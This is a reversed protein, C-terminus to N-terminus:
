KNEEISKLFSLPPSILYIYIRKQMKTKSLLHEYPLTHNIKNLHIPPHSPSKKHFSQMNPCPIDFTRLVKYTYRSLYTLLQQGIRSYKSSFSQPSHTLMGIRFVTGARLSSHRSALFISSFHVNVGARDDPVMLGYYDNTLSDCYMSVRISAGVYTSKMGLYVSCTDHTYAWKAVFLADVSWSVLQQM